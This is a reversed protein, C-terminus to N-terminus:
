KIQETGGMSTDNKNGKKKRTRTTEPQNKKHANHAEAAASCDDRYTKSGSTRSRTRVRAFQFQFIAHTYTPFRTVLLFFFVVPTGGPPSIITTPIGVRRAAARRRAPSSMRPSSRPLSAHWSTHIALPSPSTPLTGPNEFPCHKLREHVGRDAFEKVDQYNGLVSQLPRKKEEGQHRTVALSKPPGISWRAM